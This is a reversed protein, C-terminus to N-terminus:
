DNKTDEECMIKGMEKIIDLIRNDTYLKGELVLQAFEHNEEERMQNYTVIDSITKKKFYGSIWKYIILYVLLTILSKEIGRNTMFTGNMIDLIMYMLWPLIMLFMAVRLRTLYCMLVKTISKVPTM